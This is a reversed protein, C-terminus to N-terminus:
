KEPLMEQVLGLIGELAQASKSQALEQVGVTTFRWKVWYSKERMLFLYEMRPEESAGVGGRFLFLALLAPHKVDGRQFTYSLKKVLEYGRGIKSLEELVGELHMEIQDPVPPTAPFTVVTGTTVATVGQRVRYTASYHPPEGYSLIRVREWDGRQTQFEIGSLPDVFAGQVRVETPQTLATQLGLTLLATVLM